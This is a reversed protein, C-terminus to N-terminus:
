AIQLFYSAIVRTYINDNGLVADSVISQIETKSVKDTLALLSKKIKMMIKNAMSAYIIHCHASLISPHVGLEAKALDLVDLVANEFKNGTVDKNKDVVTVLMSILKELFSDETVADNFTMYQVRKFESVDDPKHSEMMARMAAANYADVTASPTKRLIKNILERNIPARRMKFTTLDNTWLIYAKDCQDHINIAILEPHKAIAPNGQKILDFQKIIESTVGQSGIPKTITSLISMDFYMDINNSVNVLLGINTDALAAQISEIIDHLHDTHKKSKEEIIKIGLLTDIVERLNQNTGDDPVLGFTQLRNLSGLQEHYHPEMSLVVQKLKDGLQHIYEVMNKETIQDFLQEIIRMGIPIFFRADKAITIHRDLSTQNMCIFIVDIVSRLDDVVVISEILKNTQRDINDSLRTRLEILQARANILSSFIATISDESRDIHLSLDESTYLTSVIINDLSSISIMQSTFIEYFEIITIATPDTVSKSSIFSYSISPINLEVKKYSLNNHQAILKQCEEILKSNLDFFEFM